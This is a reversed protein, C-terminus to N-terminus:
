GINESCTPSLHGERARGVVRESFTRESRESPDTTGRGGVTRESREDFLKESRKSYEGSTTERSRLEKSRSCESRGEGRSEGAYQVLEYLDALHHKGAM